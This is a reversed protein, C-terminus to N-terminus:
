EQAPSEEAMLLPSFLFVVGSILVLLKISMIRSHKFSLSM